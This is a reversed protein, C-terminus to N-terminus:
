DFDKGVFPSCDSTSCLSIESSSAIGDHTLILYHGCTSSVKSVLFEHFFTLCVNFSLHSLLDM